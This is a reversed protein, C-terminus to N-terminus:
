RPRRREAAVVRLCGRRARRFGVPRDGILDRMQDDTSCWGGDGDIANLERGHSFGDFRRAVETFGRPQSLGSPSKVGVTIWPAWRDVASAVLSSLPRLPSRPAAM